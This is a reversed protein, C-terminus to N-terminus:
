NKPNTEDKWPSMLQFYNGDPDALTAIWASEMQYPAKIVKAFASIRTFEGQVDTTEFNVIIRSPDSSAGKVESHTGISFFVEGVKWGHWEGEVMDGPRGFVKEYFDAMVKIQSTGVMMSNLNLM